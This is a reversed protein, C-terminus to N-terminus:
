PALHVDVEAREFDQAELLPQPRLMAMAAVIRDPWQAIATNFHTAISNFYDRALAIRNETATLEAQLALFAANGALEPYAERLLRLSPALAHPGPGGEGPLTAAAQGRLASLTSQVQREHDRLAEVVHLLSPILDHRRHLQVDVLSLGHRVRNRLAVLNNYVSWFWGVCWALAYGAAAAAYFPLRDRWEREEAADWGMLLGVLLLLGVISWAISAGRHSALVKGETRSSVLFLEAARDATIEPAVVYERERARGIVFVPSHLRIGQETFRRRGVSHPIAEAPGKAYYLPDDESCSYSFLSELELKAGTPDVRVAGHDDKLYFAPIVGGSAVTRWGEETRMGARGRSGGTHVTRRWKEEVKWSYLVCPAGALRSRLPADSEATGKLKVLGIFVGDTRSTPLSLILRRHANSRLALFIGGLALLAGAWPLLFVAREM